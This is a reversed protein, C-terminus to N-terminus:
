VLLKDVQSYVEIGDTDKSAVILEQQQYYFLAQPSDIGDTETFLTKCRGSIYHFIKNSEKCSVLLGGNETLAISSAFKVEPIHLKESKQTNTDVSIVGDKQSAIYLLAHDASIAISWPVSIGLDITKLPYGSDDYSQIQKRNFLGVYLTEDSSALGTCTDKVKFSRSLQMKGKVTLFQVTKENCLSVAIETNNFTCVSWPHSPLRCKDLVIYTSGLRKISLNAADVIILCGDNLQCVSTVDCRYKEDKDQVSFVNSNKTYFIGLAEVGAFCNMVQQYIKFDLPLAKAALIRQVMAKADSKHKEGIKSLVFVESADKETKLREDSSKVLEYVDDVKGIDDTVNSVNQQFRNEILQVSSKELEDFQKMIYDRVHKFEKFIADKQTRYMALDTKRKQKISELQSLIKQSEKQQQKYEETKQFDKSIDPIYFRDKCLSHDLALCAACCVANHDGCFMDLVKGHHKECCITIAPVSVDKQSVFRSDYMAPDVLRHSKMKAFRNHDNLCNGCLYEGCDICFKVAEKNKGDSICPSCTYDYLFDCGQELSGAFSPVKRGGVAM